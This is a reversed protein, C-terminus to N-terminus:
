DGGEAGGFKITARSKPPPKNLDGTQFQDWDKAMVRNLLDKREQFFLVQQIVIVAILVYVEIRIM